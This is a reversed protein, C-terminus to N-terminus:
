PCPQDPSPQDSSPEDVSAGPAGVEAALRQEVLRRFRVLAEDMPLALMPEGPKLRRNRAQAVIMERDERFAALLGEYLGETTAADGRDARHAEMFFYHTSEATEPTLAQCSHFEVGDGGGDQCSGAPRAGSRMLLTAPLTFDYTLWRDIAGEYPWLPRYYNPPPVNPVERSVRVGDPLREVKPRIAAIRETGGLTRAHVYSLHSFDLLNDAILHWPTEYHLYGPRYRWEPHDCSYNDPLRAPDAREGDGMWVMVWRRHVVAPYRRVCASRPIARTGPIEVCRGTPDFRLGHYGCRVDDGERAGRSLPAHRHCCRDELAVVDGRSTRWLVLPEGLITRAFMGGPPLEHEWAAVYWASRVFGAM